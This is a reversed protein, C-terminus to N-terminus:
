FKAIRGNVTGAFIVSDFDLRDEIILIPTSLTYASNITTV